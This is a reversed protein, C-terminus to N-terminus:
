MVEGKIDSVMKEAGLWKIYEIGTVYMIICGDSYEALIEGNRTKVVKLVDVLMRMASVVNDEIARLRYVLHKNSASIEYGDRWKRLIVSDRESFRLECYKVDHVALLKKIGNLLEVM